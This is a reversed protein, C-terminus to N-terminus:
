EQMTQLLCARCRAVLVEVSDDEWGAGFLISAGGINDQLASMNRRMSSGTPQPAVLNGGFPVFQGLETYCIALHLAGSYGVSIAKRRTRAVGAALLKCGAGHPIYKVVFQRRNLLHASCTQSSLPSLGKSLRIATFDFRLALANRRRLTLDEM